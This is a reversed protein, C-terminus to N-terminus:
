PERAVVEDPPSPVPQHEAGATPHIGVLHEIQKVAAELDKKLHHRTHYLWYTFPIHAFSLVGVFIIAAEYWTFKGAIM